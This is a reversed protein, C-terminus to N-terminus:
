VLETRLAHWDLVYLANIWYMCSLLESCSWDLLYMVGIWYMCCMLGTCVFDLVHLVLKYLM